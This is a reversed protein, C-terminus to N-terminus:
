ALVLVAKRGHTLVVITADRGQRALARDLAEEVTPARDL